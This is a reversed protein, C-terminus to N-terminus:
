EAAPVVTLDVVIKIEEALKLFLFEPRPIGYDTIKLPFETQIRIAGADGVTQVTGQTTLARSAGHITMTGHVTLVSPESGSLPKAGSVSDLVFVANPFSDTYLHNERMHKNRLDIGTDLTRLDVTVIGKARNLDAADIAFEATIGKAKGVFSELIAKSHFEARNRAAPDLQYPAASVYGFTTLHLLILFLAAPKWGVKSLRDSQVRGEKKWYYDSIVACPRSMM